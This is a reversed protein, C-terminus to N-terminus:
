KKTSLKGKRPKVIFRNSWKNKPRTKVGLAPRGWPTKPHKLGIPSGGEGGGHPHDVPNMAKGRVTPKIGLWRKRGAKSFNINGHDSNSMQGISAAVEKNFRRIEGSPLKIHVSEGEKAMIVASNGAGRVVKAGRGPKLELMSVLTGSPIHKLPMRNGPEFDVKKKSSIIQQNEKVGEPVPLYRREGDKYVVLAIFASRFPDYQISEVKGPVDFKDQLFDVDRYRKKHGGGVHRVTIKGQSNRGGKKSRGKILAKSPKGNHLTKYDISVYKRQSNGNNRHKKLAM